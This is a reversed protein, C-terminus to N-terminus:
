CFILHVFYPYLFHSLRLLFLLRILAEPNIIINSNIIWHM